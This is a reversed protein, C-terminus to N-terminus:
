VDLNKIFNANNQIFKFRLEAQKGMLTEFLSETNKMDKKAKESNIMILNRKNQDMTTEKLQDAPMEGLGKFRTINYNDSKFEKKILKDKEKEDYKQVKKLQKKSIFGESYLEQASPQKRLNELNPPQNEGPRNNRRQAQHNSM